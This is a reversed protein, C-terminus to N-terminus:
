GVSGGGCDHGGTLVPHGHSEIVVPLMCPELSGSETIIVRAIGTIAAPDSLRPWVFNGMSWFVAAGDMMEFPQLRHPHHGFIVDAGAEIMAHALAIQEDNPETEKEVGWHITVVVIDAMEAAHEVAEVMGDVDAGSRMGPSDDTAFWDPAPAVGGLGVVAITWGDIDFLAPEGAQSRDAGVGIPVVGSEAVKDRGDLLAEEGFDGSHNNALNAVEVSGSALFPLSETPCRFTFTKDLPFGIDSPACELNIITLDDEALVGDLGSFAYGFGAQRLVPLQVPDLLVDGTGQIVVTGRPPPSTTTSTTTTV